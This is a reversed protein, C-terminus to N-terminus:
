GENEGGDRAPAPETEVQHRAAALLTGLSDHIRALQEDTLDALVEALRARMAAMHRQHNRRGKATEAVRVVRRDEPDAQRRALGHSVLGDVLVTVTSPKLGLAEAVESMTPTGLESITRLCDMQGLTVNMEPVPATRPRLYTGLFERLLDDIGGIYEDRPKEM